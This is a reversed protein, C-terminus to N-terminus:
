TRTRVRRDVHAHPLVVFTQVDRPLSRGVRRYRDVLVEDLVLRDPRPHREVLRLRGVLTSERPLGHRAAGGVMEAQEAARRCTDSAQGCADDGEGGGTVAKERKDM